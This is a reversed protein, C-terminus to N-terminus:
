DNSPRKSPRETKILVSKGLDTTAYKQNRDRLNEKITYDLYNLEILPEVHRKFNVSHNALGLFALIEQRSKPAKCFQILSIVQDSVQDSVQDNSQGDFSSFTEFASHKPIEVIFHTREPENADFIPAPSGNDALSKVITPIGTGRGETLRLEKLFEGIRRNRYRRARVRGADFDTQKSFMLLGVNKSLTGNSGNRICKIVIQGKGAELLEAQIAEEISHISNSIVEFLPMLPKTRPLRTNRIKNAINSTALLEM